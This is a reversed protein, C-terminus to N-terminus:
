FNGNLYIYFSSSSFLHPWPGSDCMCMCMVTCGRLSQQDAITMGVGEKLYMPGVEMHVM